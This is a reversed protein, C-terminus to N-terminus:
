TTKEQKVPQSLQKKLESALTRIVSTNVGNKKALKVYNGIDAESMLHSKDLHPLNHGLSDFQEALRGGEVNFNSEIDHIQELVGELVERFRIYDDINGLDFGQKNVLDELRETELKVENKTQANKRFDGSLELDDTSIKKAKFQKLDKAEGKYGGILSKIESLYKNLSSNRERIFRDQMLKNVNITKAEGDAHETYDVIKVEKPDRKNTIQGYYTLMFDPNMQMFMEFREKDVKDKIVIRDGELGMNYIWEKLRGQAYHADRLADGKFGSLAQRHMETVAGGVKAEGDDDRLSMFFHPATGAKQRGSLKNWENMSFGVMDPMMMRVGKKMDESNIKLNGQKDVWGNRGGDWSLDVNTGIHLDSIRKGFKDVAYGMDDVVARMRNTEYRGTNTNFTSQGMYEFHRTDRGIDELEDILQLTRQSARGRGQGAGTGELYDHLFDNLTMENYFTGDQYGYREKGLRKYESRFKDHSMLDDLYGKNAAAILLAERRLTGEGGKMNFTRAGLEMFRDKGLPLYEKAYDARLRAEALQLEPTSVGYDAHSFMIGTAKAIWSNTADEKVKMTSIKGAQKREEDYAATIANGKEDRQFDNVAVTSADKTILGKNILAQKELEDAYTVVRGKKDRVLRGSTQIVDNGSVAQKALKDYEKREEKTLAAEPGFERVQWGDKGRIRFVTGLGTARVGGNGAYKKRNAKTAAIKNGDTDTIFESFKKAQDYGADGQQLVQVTGDKNRMFDNAKRWSGAQEPPPEGPKGYAIRKGPNKQKYRGDSYMFEGDDLKVYDKGETKGQIDDESMGIYEGTKDRAIVGDKELKFFGGKVTRYFNNDKKARGEQMLYQEGDVAAQGRMWEFWQDKGEQDKVTREFNKFPNIRKYGGSWFKKSNELSMAYALTDSKTKLDKGHSAWGERGAKTLLALSQRVKSPAIVNDDKDHRQRGIRGTAFDVVGRSVKDRARGGVWAVGRGAAGIAAAGTLVMGAKKGYKSVKDAFNAVAGGSQQAMKQAMTLGGLLLAMAVAYQMLTGTDVDTIFASDQKEPVFNKGIDGQQLTVLALWLFFAIVPGSVLHQFFMSWWQSWYKPMAAYSLYALPSLITLVWLMAIRWLLVAMMILVTMDAVLIMVVALIAAAVAGEQFGEGGAQTISLIEYLGFGSALNGAAADKFGNVFTLMIVQFFDILFGCILKSFNIMIAMILLKVLIKQYHYSQIKLITSYAIILLVVIFFMNALDRVTAWGLEVMPLNTINNFTAVAILLSVIQVFIYGLFQVIYLLFTTIISSFTGGIASFIDDLIGAKVEHGTIVGVLVLIFLLFLLAKRNTKLTLFLQAIKSPM